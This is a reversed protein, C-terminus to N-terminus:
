ALCGAMVTQLIASGVVATVTAATTAQGAAQVTQTAAGPIVQRVCQRSMGFDPAIGKEFSSFDLGMLISDYPTVSLPNTFELQIKIEDSTINLIKVAFEESALLRAGTSIEEESSDQSKGKRINLSFLDSFDGFYIQLRVCEKKQNDFYETAKCSPANAAQTETGPLGETM